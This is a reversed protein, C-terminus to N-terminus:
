RNMWGCRVNYTDIGADYRDRIGKSPKPPCSKTICVDAYAVWLVLTLAHLSLRPKDSRPGSVHTLELEARAPVIGLSSIYLKWSLM